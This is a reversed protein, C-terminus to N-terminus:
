YPGFLDLRNMERSQFCIAFQFISILLLCLSRSYVNFLIDQSRRIWDRLPASVLHRQILSVAHRTKSEMRGDLNVKCLLSTTGSDGKKTATTRMLKSQRTPVFALAAIVSSIMWDTFLPESVHTRDLWYYFCRLFVVVNKGFPIFIFCLLLSYGTLMAVSLFLSLPQGVLM